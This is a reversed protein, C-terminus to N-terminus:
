EGKTTTANQRYPSTTFVSSSAARFIILTNTVVFLENGNQKKKTHETRFWTVDDYEYYVDGNKKEVFLCMM